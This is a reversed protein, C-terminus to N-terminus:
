INPHPKNTLSHTPMHMFSHFFEHISFHITNRFYFLFESERLIPEVFVTCECSELFRWLAGFKKSDIYKVM